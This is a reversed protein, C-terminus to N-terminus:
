KLRVKDGLILCELHRRQLKNLLRKKKPPVANHKSLGNLSSKLPKDSLFKSQLRVHGRGPTVPQIQQLKQQCVQTISGQRLLLSRNWTKHPGAQFFYFLIFYFGDILPFSSLLSASLCIADTKQKNKNKLSSLKNLYYFGAVLQSKEISTKHFTTSYIFLIFYFYLFNVISVNPIRIVHFYLYM